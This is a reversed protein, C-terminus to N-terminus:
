AQKMQNQSYFVHRDCQVVISVHLPLSNAVSAISKSSVENQYKM